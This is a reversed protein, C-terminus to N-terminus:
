NASNHGCAPLLATSPHKGVGFPNQLRSTISILRHLPDNKRALEKTKEAGGKGVQRM